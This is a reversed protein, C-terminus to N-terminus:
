KRFFEFNFYEDIGDPLSENRYLDYLQETYKKAEEMQDLGHCAVIMDKITWPRRTALENVFSDSFEDASKELLDLIQKTWQQSDEWAEKRFSSKALARLTSVHAWRVDEKLSEELDEVQDLEQILKLAEAHKGEAFLVRGQEFKDANSQAFGPAVFLTLALYYSANIAPKLCSM